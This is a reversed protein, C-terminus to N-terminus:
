KQCAPCYTTARGNVKIGKLPKHCQRCKERQRGYVLFNDAYRGRKGEMTRYTLITSGGLRVARRLVWRIARYLKGIEPQRLSSARRTPRIGALFLTETAYINGLGVVVSQDMLVVKIRGRKRSLASELYRPTFASSLPEVGVGAFHDEVRSADPYYILYGFKRADNYILIGRNLRFIVHDHRDFKYEGKKGRKIGEERCYRFHGSMKLHVVIRGGGSLVIILNKGRREVGLIKRGSVGRTFERVAARSACRLNGRGSVLKPWRVLAYKITQGKVAAILGRRMNEVEPLEPM